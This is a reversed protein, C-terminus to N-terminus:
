RRRRNARIKRARRQYLPLFETPFDRYAEAFQERIVDRFSTGIGNSMRPMSTSPVTGMWIRGRKV